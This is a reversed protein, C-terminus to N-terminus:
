GRCMEGPGHTDHGGRSSAHRPLHHRHLTRAQGRPAHEFNQLNVSAYALGLYLGPCRGGSGDGRRHAAAAAGGCVISGHRAGSRELRVSIVAM